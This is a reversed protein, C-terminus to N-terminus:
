TGPVPDEIRRVIRATVFILLESDSDDKFKSRFLKGILPLSGLFPIRGTRNTATASRLGGIALTDGDKVNASTNIEQSLVNPFPSDTESPTTAQIIPQLSITITGDRHVTPIVTLVIGEPVTTFRDFTRTFPPNGNTGPFVITEQTLVTQTRVQVIQATLNNFTTVRPAQEVRARGSRIAADLSATFNGRTFAVSIGGAGSAGVGSVNTGNPVLFRGPTGPIVPPGPSGPTGPIFTNGRNDFSLNFVDSASTTLTVFKAEIEVQVIPKDLLAIIERIRDIGEDTGRVLLVNQSDIAIINDVGEPLAVTGAGPALLSQTGQGAGGAGGGGAGGGGAGGGSGGFQNNTQTYPLYGSGNQNWAPSQNPVPGQSTNVNYLESATGSTRTTYDKGQFIQRQDSKVFEMPKPQNTPDLWYAMINPKVNQIVISATEKPAVPAKPIIKTFDFQPNEIEPASNIDSAASSTGTEAADRNRDIKNVIYTRSDLKKWSLGITQAVIKLAQEPTKDTLRLRQVVGTVDEGMAIDIGGESAIMNLVESVQAKYFTLSILSSKSDAISATSSARPTIFTNQAVSFSSFVTAYGASVIGSVWAARRVCKSLQDSNKSMKTTVPM